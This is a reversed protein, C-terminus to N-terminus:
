GPGLGKAYVPKQHPESVDPRRCEVDLLWEGVFWWGVGYLVWVGVGGALVWCLGRDLVPYFGSVAALGGFGVVGFTMGKKSAV